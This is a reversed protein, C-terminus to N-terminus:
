ICSCWATIHNSWNRSAQQCPSAVELSHGVPCVTAALRVWSLALPQSSSSSQSPRPLTLPAKRAGSPLSIRCPPANLETHVRRWRAKAYSAGRDKRLLGHVHQTSTDHRKLSESPSMRGACSPPSAQAEQVFYPVYVKLKASKLAEAFFRFQEARM